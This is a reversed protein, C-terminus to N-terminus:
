DPWDYSTGIEPTWVVKKRGVFCLIIYTSHWYKFLSFIVFTLLFLIYRM